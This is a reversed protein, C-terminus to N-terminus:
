RVFGLFILPTQIVPLPRLPIALNRIESQSELAEAIRLGFDAIM